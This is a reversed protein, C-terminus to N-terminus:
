ALDWRLLLEQQWSSEPWRRGGRLKNVAQIHAIVDAAPIGFMVLVSGLVTGTRGTGGACHVAVGEGRDLAALVASAATRIKEAEVEPSDPYIGGYLDQLGVACVFTLPAPDYAPADDTLCAVRRVGLKWLENWPTSPTPRAMGLLPAPAKLIWYADDPVALGPVAPMREIPVFAFEKV